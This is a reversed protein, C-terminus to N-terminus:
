RPTLRAVVDTLQLLSERMGQEMGTAIVIDRVEGSPYVCRQTM